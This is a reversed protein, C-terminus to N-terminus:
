FSSTEIVLIYNFSSLLADIDSPEVLYNIVSQNISQGGELEAQNSYFGIESNMCFSIILNYM